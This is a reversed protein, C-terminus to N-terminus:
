GKCRYLLLDLKVAVALDAASLLPQQQQQQQREQRLTRAYALLRQVRPHEPEQRAIEFLRFAEDDVEHDLEPDEHERERREVRLWNYTFRLLQETRQDALTPDGRFRARWRVGQDRYLTGYLRFEETGDDEVSGWRVAVAIGNGLWFREFPEGCALRRRDELRTAPDCDRLVITRGNLPLRHENTEEYFRHCLMGEDRLQKLSWESQALKRWRRFRTVATCIERSQAACIARWRKRLEASWDPNARFSWNRVPPVTSTAEDVIEEEEAAEENEDESGSSSSSDGDGGSAEDVVEEARHNLMAKAQRLL